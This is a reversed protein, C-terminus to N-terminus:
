MDPALIRIEKKFESKNGSYDEVLIKLGILDPLSNFDMLFIDNNDKNVFIDEFKLKSDSISFANEGKTFYDLKLFYKEKGDIIVRIKYPFVDYNSGNVRDSCKIFLKGGRKIKNYQWLSLKQNDSTVFYVDDIRPALTDTFDIFALPNLLRNNKIDEVEFHLHTGTSHGSNGCSGIKESKRYIEKKFDVSGERMHSYNMRLRKDGNELIVFNGLGYPISGTRQKNYFVLESDMVSRVDQDNAALDVGTHLHDDRSDGFLATIKFDDMIKVKDETIAHFCSAIIFFLIITKKNNM